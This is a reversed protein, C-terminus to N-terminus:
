SVLQNMITNVLARWQFSDQAWQIWDVYEWVIAKLYLNINNGM